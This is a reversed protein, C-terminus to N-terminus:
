QLGILTAILRLAMADNLYKLYFVQIVAGKGQSHFPCTTDNLCYADARLLLRTLSKAQFTM